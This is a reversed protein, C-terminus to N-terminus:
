KLSGNLENLADIVLELRELFVRKAEKRVKDKDIKVLVFYKKSNDSIWEGNIEYKKEKILENAINDAFKSFTIENFGPGILNARSLYTTLESYSYDYILKKLGTTADELAINNYDSIEINTEKSIVTIDKDKDYKNDIKNLINSSIAWKDSIKPNSRSIIRYGYSNILTIIVSLLLYKRM